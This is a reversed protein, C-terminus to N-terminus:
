KSTPKVPPHKLSVSYYEKGSKSCTQKTVETVSYKLGDQILVEREEHYSSFGKSMEFLCKDAFFDIHYVVPVVLSSDTFSSIRKLSQSSDDSADVGGKSYNVLAFNLAVDKFLSTSTYGQLTIIQGQQLQMVEQHPLRLGRYLQTHRKLKDRRNQNAAFIIYSLAAAYPGYFELQNTDKDRCARNLDAYIFTEMSYIYLLHKTVKHSPDSLIHPTLPKNIDGFKALKFLYRWKEAYSIKLMHLSPADIYSEKEKEIIQLQAKILGDRIEKLSPFYQYDEEFLQLVM